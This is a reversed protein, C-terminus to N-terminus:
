AGGAHPAHPPPIGVDSALKTAAEPDVWRVLALFNVLTPSDPKAVFMNKLSNVVKSYTGAYKPHTLRTVYTELVTRAIPDTKGSALYPIQCFIRILSIADAEVLTIWSQRVEDADYKEHLRERIAAAIAVAENRRMILEKIKGWALQREMEVSLAVPAHLPQDLGTIGLITGLAKGLAEGESKRVRESGMMGRVVLPQM